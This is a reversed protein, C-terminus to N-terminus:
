NQTKCWDLILPYLDACKKDKNKERIDILARNFEKFRIFDRRDVMLSERNANVYEATEKDYNDLVWLCFVSHTMYENFVSLPNGYWGTKSGAWVTRKSFISDITKQYKYSVPNVYNHDIETFVVGSMLGEKQKETIDPRKDYRDTGCVFMVTENFRGLNYTSFNQTSHSGGILPSFVIKYSQFKGPFQNELWTWMSRIPMLATARKIQQEYFARNSQYFNRYGSKKAFDEVLPILQKFLSNFDEWNDGMVYYYPGESVLKDGKFNFVFSNERFDYYKKFYISDPFDLKAFIPHTLYPKFYTLIKQYYTGEKYLDSARQGSPSLTWIINALEYVEPIEFQVNGKNKEMYSLPFGAMIQNFHLSYIIKRKPSQIPIYHVQAYPINKYPIVLSDKGFYITVSNGPGGDAGMDVTDQDNIAMPILRQTHSFRIYFSDGTTKLVQTHIKETRQTFGVVALQLLFLLVFFRKM